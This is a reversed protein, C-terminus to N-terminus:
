NLLLNQKLEDAQMRAILIDICVKINDDSLKNMERLYKELAAEPCSMLSQFLKTPKASSTFAM